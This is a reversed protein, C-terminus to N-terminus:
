TLSRRARRQGNRDAVQSAAVSSVRLPLCCTREAPARQVWRVMPAAGADHGCIPERAPTDFSQMEMFRTEDPKHSEAARIIEKWLDEQWLPVGVREIRERRAAPLEDYPAMLHGLGHGSAKRVVVSGKQRNFLVYRKASITLCFPPDLARLDDRKDPPFNVKELQLIPNDEGYPNLDKFWERVRLATAVFEKPPLDRTNGIALSDTDCFVWDLGQEVVQHEALALMLRAAGTILTALLPHFYAGPRESTQSKFRSPHPRGGYGVIRETKVYEGVNLEVFIGYSTANALIKIAQEDSKLAPKEPASATELKAKIANRHIILRQYFDDTAPNITQGAIDIPKLGKQTGKPKFRLAKIVEPKGQSFRPRSCTPLRSGNRSTPASITSDL